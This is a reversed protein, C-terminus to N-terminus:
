KIRTEAIRLRLRQQRRHEWTEGLVQDRNGLSLPTQQRGLLNQRDLAGGDRGYQRRPTIGLVGLFADRDSKRVRCFQPLIHDEKVGAGVAVVLAPQARGPSAHEAHSAEPRGYGVRSARTAAGGLPNRELALGPAAIDGPPLDLTGSSGSTSVITRSIAGRSSPHRM